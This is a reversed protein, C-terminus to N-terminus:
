ALGHRVAYAAAATRSPLDLKTLLSTVYTTVTRYSLSLEAAIARDTRGDVILRLVQRERASLAAAPERTSGHSTPAPLAAGANSAVADPRRVLLREVAGLDLWPESPVAADIRADAVARTADFAYMVQRAAPATPRWLVTALSALLHIRDVPDAIVSPVVHLSAEIPGDAPMAIDGAPMTFVLAFAIARGPGGEAPRRSAERERAPAPPGDDFNACCSSVTPDPILRTTM